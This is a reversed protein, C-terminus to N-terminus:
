LTLCLRHGLHYKKLRSVKLLNSIKSLFCGTCWSNNSNNQRETMNLEKHGLPSCCPLSGQGEGAELSSLSMHTSNTIGNLLRMRQQGRRRRGEIKGLMLTKESSNARQMLHGFYQCKLKLMLGELLQSSQNWKPHVIQIKKCDMPSVLTKELVVTWFCWNKPTWGEKHDLKWIWVRSSSFGYSQTYLDKYM